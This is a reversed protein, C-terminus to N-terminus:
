TITLEDKRTLLILDKVKHTLTSKKDRSLTIGNSCPIIQIIRAFAMTLPGNDRVGFSRSRGPVAGNQPTRPDM